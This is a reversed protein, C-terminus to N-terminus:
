TYIHYKYSNNMTILRKEANSMLSTKGIKLYWEYLHFSDLIEITIRCIGNLVEVCVNYLRITLINNIWKVFPRYLTGEKRKQNYSEYDHFHCFWTRTWESQNEDKYKNKTWQGGGGNRMKQILDRYSDIWHISILLNQITFSVGDCWM